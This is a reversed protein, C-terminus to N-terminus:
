LTGPSPRSGCSADTRMAVKRTRVDPPAGTTTISHVSDLFQSQARFDKGGDDTEQERQQADGPEAERGLSERCAVILGAQQTRDGTGVRHKREHPDEPDDAHRRRAIVGPAARGLDAAEVVPGGAGARHGTPERALLDGHDLAHHEIGTQTVHGQAREAKERLPRAFDEHGDGRPSAERAHV